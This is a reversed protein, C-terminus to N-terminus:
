DVDRCPKWNDWTDDFAVFDAARGQTKLPLEQRQPQSPLRGTLTGGVDLYPLFKAPGGSYIEAPLALAPITDRTGLVRRELDSYDADVIPSTSCGHLRFQNVHRGCNDCYFRM